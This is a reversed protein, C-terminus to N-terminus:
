ATILFATAADASGTEAIAVADKPSANTGISSFPRTSPFLMMNESMRPVSSTASISACNLSASTYPMAPRGMLVM